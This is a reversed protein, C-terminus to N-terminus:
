DEVLRKGWEGEHGGAHSRVARVWPQYKRYLGICREGVMFGNLELWRGTTPNKWVGGGRWTEYLKECAGVETGSVM